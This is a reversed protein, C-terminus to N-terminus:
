FAFSSPVRLSGPAHLSDQSWMLSAGWAARALLEQNGVVAPLPDGRNVWAQLRRPTEAVSLPSIPPSFGSLPVELQFSNM